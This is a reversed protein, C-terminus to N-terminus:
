VHARGIEWGDADIIVGSGASRQEPIRTLKRGLLEGFYWDYVPTVALREATKTAINVVSPTVQEVARVVGDRRIDDAVFEAASAGLGTAAVLAAVLAPISYRKMSM